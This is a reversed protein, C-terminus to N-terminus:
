QRNIKGLIDRIEDHLMSNKKIVPMPYKELTENIGKLINLLMPAAEMLTYNEKVTQYGLKDKKYEIILSVVDTAPITNEDFFSKKFEENNKYFAELHIYKHLLFEKINEAELRWDIKDKSEDPMKTILENFEPIYEEQLVKKRFYEIDTDNVRETSWSVGEFDKFTEANESDDGLQLFIKKPIEKM